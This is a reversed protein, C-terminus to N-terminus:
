AGVDHLHHRADHLVYRAAQELTYTGGGSRRARRAWQDGTVRDLDGALSEAALTLDASVTAPDQRAYAGDLAAIDEDWDEFLPEDAAVILDVRAGVVALLDRVHCAYELPAWEGAHPRERADARALVAQWAPVVARVAEGLGSAEISSVDFGCTPCPGAFAAAVVAPDRDRARASPTDQELPDRM